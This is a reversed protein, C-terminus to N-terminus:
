DVAVKQCINVHFVAKLRMLVPSYAKPAFNEHTINWCWHMRKVLKLPYVNCLLKKKENSISFSFFYFREHTNFYGCDTIASLMYSQGAPHEAFLDFTQQFYTIIVM